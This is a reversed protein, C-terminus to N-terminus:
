KSRANVIREWVCNHTGWSIDREECNNREQISEPHRSCATEQWEMNVKAYRVRRFIEESVPYFTAKNTYNRKLTRCM